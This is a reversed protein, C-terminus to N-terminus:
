VFNSMEEAGINEDCSLKKSDNESFTGPASLEDEALLTFLIILFIM